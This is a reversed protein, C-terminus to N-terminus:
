RVTVRKTDIFTESGDKASSEFAKVTYSGKPLKVVFSWTGRGPAGISATVFGERIAVGNSLVQWSVTAEFVTAVGRVTVPSTVTAGNDPSNIQVPALVMFPEDPKLIGRTDAHGWLTEVNAGNVRIHVGTVSPAAARITYVLQQLGMLEFAGGVNAGKVAASFDVTAVGRSVSIGRVTTARPWVSVYDPDRPTDHLMADVAQRVVSASATHRHAERYLRPGNTTDALYYVAVDHTPVAVATAVPETVPSANASSSASPAVGASASAAATSADSSSAPASRCGTLAVVGAVALVSLNRLHDM